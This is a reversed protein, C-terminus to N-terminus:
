NVEDIGSAPFQLFAAQRPAVSADVAAGVHWVIV